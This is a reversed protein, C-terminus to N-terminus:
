KFLDKFSLQVYNRKAIHSLHVGILRFSDRRALDSLLARVTTYIIDTNRTYENLTKSRTITSFDSYRAKLTVTKIYSNDLKLKETLKNIQHLLTDYITEIDDITRSFTEEQGYSQRESIYDVESHDIGRVSEFIRVGKNAGFMDTLNNKTLNFIDSVTNIGMNNLPELSKRGIGPIIGVSKDKVYNHFKEHSDIIFYGNPKNADSALKASLKNYGIGISCTLKTHKYLSSKFKEIFSEPTYKKMYDTIDVYGEDSSVFECKYTLSLILKQIKRGLEKYYDIRVPLLILEPCLKKAAASPMASRIGYKRAEYSATTIVGKGVAIAKGKLKPNDRQEISAYFADMDYHLICRKM